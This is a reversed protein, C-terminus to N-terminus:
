AVSNASYPARDGRQPQILKGEIFLLWHNLFDKDFAGPFVCLCGSLPPIFAILFVPWQALACGYFGKFWQHVTHTRLLPWGQRALAVELWFDPYVLLAM